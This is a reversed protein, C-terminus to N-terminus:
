RNESGPLQDSGGGGRAQFLQLDFVGVMAVLHQLISSQVKSFTMLDTARTFAFIDLPLGQPTPALTRILIFNRRQHVDTRTRLYREVYIRFLDYNTLPATSSHDTPVGEQIGQLAGASEAVSDAIMEIRALRDLLMPDCLRISRVDVFLKEQIRRARAEKQMSAFNTNAVELVRHTPILSTTLDWNRVKIDYLGIHEVPGDANFAPISIWDGERILDWSAIRMSAFIARLTDQFIFGLVATAAGLGGIITLLDAEITTAAAVGVGVVVTAIKLLDIYGTRSSGRGQSRHRIIGAVSRLVKITTEVGLYILLLTFILSAARTYPEVMESLGLGLSVPIAFVFRFPRLADIVLDDMVTETRIAVNTALRGVLRQVFPTVALSVVLVALYALAQGPDIFGLM